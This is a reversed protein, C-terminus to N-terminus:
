SNSSSGWGGHGNGHLHVVWGLLLAVDGQLLQPYLWVEGSALERAVLGRAEFVLAAGGAWLRIAVGRAWLVVVAGTKGGLLDRATAAAPVAAMDTVGAVVGAGGGACAGGGCVCALDVV